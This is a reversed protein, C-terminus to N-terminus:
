TGESQPAQRDATKRAAQLKLVLARIEENNKGAIRATNISEIETSPWGVARMGLSVPKTWLGQQIRLYITSRSLGTSATVAPIRSIFLGM